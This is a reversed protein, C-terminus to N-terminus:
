NLPRRSRAPIVVLAQEMTPTNISRLKSEVNHVAETADSEGYARSLLELSFPDDHDEQLNAIADAYKKQAMLLTGLAAHYSQQIVTNRSGNAMAELQHLAQLAAQQGGGHIARATRLRLIRAREEERDSQVTNKHHGIASEALELHQLAAQDDAQYMAMLRHARAEIVHLNGLHAQEVVANFGRDAEDLKNERVWTIASQIAYDLRNAENADQQIAKEYEARARAEDGMVAYTDALGLQSSHFNPDIKLAARYHELAGDYNGSMRLIEAYSDQPNPESPLLKIYREMADFAPPFNAERAYAYATDNLAAPYNKDIALARSFLKRAQSEEQEGMLWNGALFLLRKDKPYMALMDNMAAIGAVFNNEQVNVIWEIMLQEGSTVKPALAKACAREAEVEAPDTSAFAIWAHALAFDPDLKAASRWGQTARDLQLNEYDVMAKEFLDQAQPSSTTVPLIKSSSKTKNVKPPNAQAAVCLASGLLLLIWVARPM